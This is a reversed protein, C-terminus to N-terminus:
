PHVPEWPGPPGVQYPGSIPDWALRDGLVIKPPSQTLDIHVLGHYAEFSTRPLLAALGGVATRADGPRLINGYCSCMRIQMGDLSGGFAQVLLGTVVHDPIEHTGIRQNEFRTIEEGGHVFVYTHPDSPELYVHALHRHAPDNKHLIAFIKGNQYAIAVHDQGLGFDHVALTPLRRTSPSSM